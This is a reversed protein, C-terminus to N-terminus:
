NLGPTPEDDVVSGGFLMLLMMAGRTILNPARTVHYYTLLVHLLGSPSRASGAEKKTRRTWRGL